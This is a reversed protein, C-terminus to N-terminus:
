DGPMNEGTASGRREFSPGDSSQWPERGMMVQDDEDADEEAESRGAHFGRGYESSMSPNHGAPFSGSYGNDFGRSYSDQASATTTGAMVGGLTVILVSLALSRAIARM